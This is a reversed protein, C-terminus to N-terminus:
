AFPVLRMWFGVGSMVSENIRSAIADLASIMLVNDLYSSLM